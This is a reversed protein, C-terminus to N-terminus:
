VLGARRRHVRYALWGALAGALPPVVLVGAFEGVGPAKEMQGLLSAAAPCALFGGIFATCCGLTFGEAIPPWRLWGPSAGLYQWIRAHNSRVRLVMFTGLFLWGVMWLLSTAMLARRYGTLVRRGAAYLTLQEGASVVETVGPVTMLSDVLRRTDDSTRFAPKLTVRISPPLPNEPLVSFALPGLYEEAERRAQEPSIYRATQIQRLFGLQGALSAARDEEVTRELFVEFQPERFRNEWWRLGQELGLHLVAAGAIGGSAVLIVLVTLVPRARLNAKWEKFLLYRRM